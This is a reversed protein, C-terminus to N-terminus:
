SNLELIAYGKILKEIGAALQSFGQVQPYKRQFARTALYWATTEGLYRTIQRRDRSCPDHQTHTVIVKATEVYLKDL